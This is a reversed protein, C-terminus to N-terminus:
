ENELLNELENIMDNITDVQESLVTIEETSSQVMSTINFFENNERDIREAIDENIEVTESIVQNQMKQIRDAEEIAAVSKKLLEMMTRIGTVTETIVRNQKMLQEANQNMFRSVDNTGNQVKSVVDNVNQLSEKTSEALHGVEQAVVAFGKGAEGARAAEISANLALLNISEAIENIIDLTKGIEGAENLLKDTVEMTHKTSNEVTESMGMLHNLASENSASIEVLEKSIRDVAQMKEKMNKSSSELNSLNEKSKDSKQLMMKSSELLNTSIASLEETSASETQSAAVLSKSAIGLEGAIHSVRNLVNQVRENNKEMEDKKANVLFKGVFFTIFWISCCSLMVGIIRIAMEPIFLEDRVPLLDSSKLIWGAMLSVVLEGICISIMKCDLFFAALILFFFIYGWFDRSPIMYLIFNFQILLLVTIFLKGYFLMETRLVGNIISKKILIQGIVVYFVCTATFIGIAIWSVEHYFGLGKLVSFTVGACICAGTIATIIWRYVITFYVEMATLTKEGMSEVKEKKMRYVTGINNSISKTILLSQTYIWM